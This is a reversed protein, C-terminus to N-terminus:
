FDTSVNMQHIKDPPIYDFIFTIRTERGRNIVSHQMQNNIEYAKGVEFQYPRGGIIFRVKPNTTIPIHIRHSHRFSPHVDTHPKIVSNPLLRAAMARIVMGGRPYHQSLIQEMLPLAVKQLVDWGSKRQLKVTPWDGADTFIMILSQTQYHVEYVLQRHKNELWIHDETALIAERLPAIDLKGLCILPEGIDM